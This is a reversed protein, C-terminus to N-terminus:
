SVAPDIQFPESCGDGIRCARYWGPDAEDSVLYAAEYLHGVASCFWEKEPTIRMWTGAVEGDATSAEAHTMTMVAYATWEPRDGQWRELLMCDGTVESRDHVVGDAYEILHNVEGYDPGV